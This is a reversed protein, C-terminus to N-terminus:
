TSPPPDTRGLEPGSDRVRRLWRHEISQHMPGRRRHHTLCSCPWLRRGGPCSGIAQDNENRTMRLSALTAYARALERTGGLPELTSIAEIAAAVAEDGRCLHKLTLSYRQLSEGEHRRDELMRWLRLAQEDAEAATQSQDSLTAEEALGTYLEAQASPATHAAWRLAREYQAAAERHSGLDVARRAALSAHLVVAEENGAGEAHFAMRADDRSGNAQLASLIKAHILAQRHAPIEQTIVLRPRDRHRSACPRGRRSWCDPRASIRGACIAPGRAPERRDAGRMLAATKSYRGPGRRQATRHALSTADRASLPLVRRAGAVCAGRQRLLPNGGTLQTCGQPKATSAPGPPWRGSLRSRCRRCNLRLM